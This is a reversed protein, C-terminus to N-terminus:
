LTIPIGNYFDLIKAKFIYDYKARIQESLSKILKTKSENFEFVSAKGIEYREEAYKFSEQSAEVAKVSSRYEEQSATANLYATQIEKYLTKKTNDLTFQQYKIDLRASKVKNRVQFRNFIPISLSLGIAEGANNKIQDSFPTNSYGEKLNYNYYYNNNYQLNLNLKPMYGAQAIKLSKRTSELRLEQEKIVPKITVANDYIVDPPLISKINDEMVNDTDPIEIQFDTSRELELMQALDLLALKLKNEAQIAAVEDKAVEAKIDYLQSAPVKGVEVLYETRTVKSKSLLLQELSVKLLEQNFLVDMFFGAVSLSLSEKAKELNQTAAELDLKGKAVENPIRFGTFLPTASSIYFSTNSSRMDEYVGLQNNNSRGFSWNQGMGANLDPLRSMKATNLDVAANEEQLKLKKIDINHDIAYNICEELTWRKSDDQASSITYSFIVAFFLLLIKKM